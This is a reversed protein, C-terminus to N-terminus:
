LQTSVDNYLSLLSHENDTSLIHTKIKYLHELVVKILNTKSLDLQAFKIAVTLDGVRFAYYILPWLPFEENQKRDSSINVRDKYIKPYHGRYLVRLFAKVYAITDMGYLCAINTQEKVTNHIHDM